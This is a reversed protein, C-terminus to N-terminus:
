SFVDVTLTQTLLYMNLCALDVNSGAQSVDCLGRNAFLPQHRPVFHFYIRTKETNKETQKFGLWEFSEM